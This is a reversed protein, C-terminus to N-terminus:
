KSLIKKFDQGLIPTKQTICQKYLFAFKICLESLYNTVVRSFDLERNDDRQM